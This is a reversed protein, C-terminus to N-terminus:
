FWGQGHEREVHLAANYKWITRQFHLRSPPCLPCNIPVNSSHNTDMSVKAHLFRMNVYHYGCSSTIAPNGTKNAPVSTVCGECGCFGRPEPGIEEACEPDVLLRQSCLIHHGVHSRMHSLQVQKKCLYCALMDKGEHKQEPTLHAPLDRVVFMPE